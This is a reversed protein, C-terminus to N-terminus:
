IWARAIEDDIQQTLQVWLVGGRVEAILGCDKALAIIADRQEPHDDAEGGDWLEMWQNTADHSGVEDWIGCVLDLEDQTMARTPTAYNSM